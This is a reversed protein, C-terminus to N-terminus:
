VFVRKNYIIWELMLIAGLAMLLYPWIPRRNVTEADSTAVLDGAAIRFDPNPAILSEQEDLLNVARTDDGPIAGDARYVGTRQTDGFTIINGERVHVQTRSDTASRTTDAMRKVEVQALGPRVNLTFAQGPSIAPQQGLTSSGSLFRLANAMFVVWGREYVWFANLHSREEDFVHFGCLLYRNRGETLLAIVPGTLNEALVDAKDPLVLTHWNFINMRPRFGAHRLVPHTDDWDLLEEGVIKEGLQVDEALPTADFFMYNGPPLRQTSHGDFIVVNYKVKGHELLEEDPADEYRDPTWIDYDTIIADLADNLYRNGPTVLLARIPRPPTVIAFAKDDVALADTQPFRVEIEAASELYLEFSVTAESEGAPSYTSERDVMPKEKPRAALEPLAQVDRKQGDVYLELDRSAPSDGFNRVRVLVSAQEPREYNRRVDLAVIGVNETTEGIRAIELQGREVIVESADPLRGDTLLVYQSGELSTTNEGPTSHAEALRMAEHFRGAADTPEISDIAQHLAGKSDTFPTLVRARDSFSIVMALQSASMEDIIKKAETRAIDLRTEGSPETTSMSASADILLVMSKDVRKPQGWIPEALALIAALLILLQLLLLLNRRLKQFPSNVQLDHVARKWLLTSAIPIQKRKLKLFYLLVLPPITLGAAIAPIHWPSLFNM